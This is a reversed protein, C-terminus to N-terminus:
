WGLEDREMRSALRVSRAGADRAVMDPGSIRDALRALQVDLVRRRVEQTRGWGALFEAAQRAVSAEPAAIARAATVAEFDDM